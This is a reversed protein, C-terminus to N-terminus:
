TKPLKGHMVEPYDCDCYKEQIKGEAEPPRPRPFKGGRPKESNVSRDGPDNGQSNKGPEPPPEDGERDQDASKKGALEKSADAGPL